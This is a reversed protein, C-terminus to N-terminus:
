QRGATHLRRYDRRAAGEYRVHDALKKRTMNVLLKLLDGPTRLQYKGLAMRAFFSAFVAQCIDTSDFFRWLRPDVSWVRVARRLVPEYLGVVLSAAEQDGARLREILERFVGAELMVSRHPLLDILANLFCPSQGGVVLPSDGKKGFARLFPS